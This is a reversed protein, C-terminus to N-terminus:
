KVVGGSCTTVASSKNCQPVPANVEPSVTSEQSCESPLMLFTNATEDKSLDIDYGTHQVHRRNRRLVGHSTDIMYSWGRYDAQTITGKDTWLKEKDTKTQSSRRCRSSTTECEMTPISTYNPPMNMPKTAKRVLDLDPWRPTLISPNVPVITRIKRGM